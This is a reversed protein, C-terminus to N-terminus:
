ALAQVRLILSNLSPRQSNLVFRLQAEANEGTFLLFRPDGAKLPQM